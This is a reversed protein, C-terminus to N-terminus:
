TLDLTKEKILPNLIGFALSQIFGLPHVGWSVSTGFNYRWPRVTMSYEKRSFCTGWCLPLTHDQKLDVRYGVFGLGQLGQRLSGVRGELDSCLAQM